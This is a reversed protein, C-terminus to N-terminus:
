DLVSVSSIHPSDIEATDDLHTTVATAPQVASIALHDLGKFPPMIAPLGYAIASKVGAPLFIRREYNSRKSVVRL